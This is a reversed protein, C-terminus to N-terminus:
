GRWHRYAQYAPLRADERREELREVLWQFWEFLLRHNQSQRTEETWSRVVGWIKIAAGGILDKVEEFPVVRNHVLLGITEFKMGVRLVASVYEDGLANISEVSMDDDLEALLRYAETFDRDEFSAALEHIAINRLQRRHQRLQMLGFTIGFVIAFIGIIEVISAVDSLTM